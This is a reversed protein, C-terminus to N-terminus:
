ATHFVREVFPTIVPLKIWEHEIAVTMLALLAIPLLVKINRAGGTLHHLMEDAANVKELGKHAIESAAPGTERETFKLVAKGLHLGVDLVINLTELIVIIEEIELIEPEYKMLIGGTAANVVVEVVGQVAELTTVIESFVPTSRMAQPVRIRARGPYFSELTAVRNAISMNTLNEGYSNCLKSM